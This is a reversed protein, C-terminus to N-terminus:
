SVMAPGNLKSKMAHTTLDHWDEFEHIYKRVLNGGYM